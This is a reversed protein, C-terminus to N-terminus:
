NLSDSRFSFDYFLHIQRTNRCFRRKLEDFWLPYHSIEMEGERWRERVFTAVFLHIYIFVNKFQILSILAKM